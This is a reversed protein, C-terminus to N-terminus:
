RRRDEGWKGSSWPVFAIGIGHQSSNVAEGSYAAVLWGGPVRARECTILTNETALRQWVIKEHQEDQAMAVNGAPLQWADQGSHLGHGVYFLGLVAAVALLFWARSSVMSRGKQTQSQPRQNTDSRACRFAVTARAPRNAPRLIGAHSRVIGRQGGRRNLFDAIVQAGCKLEGRECEIAM